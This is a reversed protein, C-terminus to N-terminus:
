IEWNINSAQTKEKLERLIPYKEPCSKILIHKKSSYQEDEDSWEEM